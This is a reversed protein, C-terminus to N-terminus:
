LANSTDGLMLKDQMINMVAADKDSKHDFGLLHLIAHVVIFKLHNKFNIGLKFSEDKCFQPSIAIDGLFIEKSQGFYNQPIKPFNTTKDTHYIVQPWALVNTALRKKMFKANLEKITEFDCAFVSISYRNLPYNLQTLANFLMAESTKKFDFNYHETELRVSVRIDSQELNQGFKENTIM